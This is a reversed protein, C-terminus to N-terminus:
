YISLNKKLWFLYIIVIVTESLMIGLCAGLFSFKPILILNAFINLLTCGIYSFFLIRVKNLTLIFSDLFFRLFMPIVVFGLIKVASAAKAFEPGFFLPIYFDAGLFLVIAILFSTLILLKFSSKFILVLETRSNKSLRSAAPFIAVTFTIPIILVSEAVRAAVGFWGTVINNVMRSLMITGIKFNIVQFFMLFTFPIGGIFLKQWLKFDFDLKIYAFRTRILVLTFLLTFISVFLFIQSIFLIDVPVCKIVVVILCLKLVGEFIISISDYKMREFVQFISKLFTTYSDIVMALGFMATLILFERKEKLALTTLLMILYAAASLFFKLTAINNIYRTHKEQSEGAVERVLLGSIGFDTAFLFLAVFSLIYSLRGFAEAGLYRAIFM